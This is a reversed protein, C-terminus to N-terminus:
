IGYTPMWQSFTLIIGLLTLPVVIYEVIVTNLTQKFFHQVLGMLMHQIILLLLALVAYDHPLYDIVWFLETMIFACCLAFITSAALQKRSWWLTAQFFLLTAFGFLLIIQLWTTMPLFYFVLYFLYGVLLTISYLVIRSFSHPLANYGRLDQLGQCLFFFLIGYLISTAFLLLQPPAFIRGLVVVIIYSTLMYLFPLILVVLTIPEHFRVSLHRRAIFVLLFFSLLLGGIFFRTDTFNTTFINFIIGALFAAVVM